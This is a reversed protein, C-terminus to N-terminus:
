ATPKPMARCTTAHTNAEARSTTLYDEDYHRDQLGYRGGGGITNCGLCRWNFGNSVRKENNPMLYGPQGPLYNVTRTQRHLEVTAGGQTLFRMVVDNSTQSTAETAPTPTM